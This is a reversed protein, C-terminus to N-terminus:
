EVFQDSLTLCDSPPNSATRKLNTIWSKLLAVEESALHPGVPPMNGALPFAEFDAVRFGSRM